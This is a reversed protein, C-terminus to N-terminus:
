SQKTSMVGPGFVLGLAETFPTLKIPLDGLLRATLMSIDPPSNYGRQVSASLCEQVCATDYGLHQAVAMAMDLRSLRDPGGLNYTSHAPLDPYLSVIHVVVQCIDDVLVACRFEDSFFSTPQQGKLKDRIFQLFLPRGVPVPPDHGYILSARLIVHKPWSSRIYDEAALKSRGYANVPQCPHDETWWSQNGEYVQDTSIHVLLAEVEATQKQLQLAQVLTTPVNVACTKPYDQECVAPQAIAACNVVAHVPNLATFAEQLGAGTVCDVQYATADLTGDPLPNNHYTYAVTHTKSLHAVLFQGLYGSGGTVLINVM